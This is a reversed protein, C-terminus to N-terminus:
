SIKFFGEFSIHCKGRRIGFTREDRVHHNSDTVVKVFSLFKDNGSLDTLTDGDAQDFNYYALLWEEDGSLPKNM